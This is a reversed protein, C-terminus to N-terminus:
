ELEALNQMIKGLRERLESARDLQRRVVDEPANAIFKPDKLKKEIKGIHDTVDRQQRQLRAREEDLDILGELQIFVETTGFVTAASHRPKPAGVAYHLDELAAISSVFDPHRDLVASTQADPCSVTVRLPQIEKLNKESRVNRIARVLGQLYAMDSELQEDRLGEDPRPWQAAVLAPAGMRAAAALGAQSAVSKLHGWLEETLYPVFPHLLRLSIDLAHTLTERAGAFDAPDPNDRLRFKASEIYWDCLDHWFFDYIAQAADNMRFQELHETVLAVTKAM